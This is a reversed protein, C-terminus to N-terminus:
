DMCGMRPAVIKDLGADKQRLVRRKLGHVWVPHLTTLHIGMKGGEIWASMRPAAWAGGAFEGQVVPGKLEHVVHPACCAIYGNGNGEIWAGTHPAVQLRAPM